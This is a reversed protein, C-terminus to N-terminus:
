KIKYISLGEKYSAVVSDPWKGLSFDNYTILAPESIACYDMALPAQYNQVFSLFEEKSVERM